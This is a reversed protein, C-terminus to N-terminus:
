FNHIRLIIQNVHVGNFVISGLVNSVYFCSNIVAIVFNILEIENIKEYFENFRLSSRDRRKM